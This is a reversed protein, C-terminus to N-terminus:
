FYKLIVVNSVLNEIKKHMTPIEFPFTPNYELIHKTNGLSKRYIEKM